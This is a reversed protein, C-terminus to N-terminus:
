HSRIGRFVIDGITELLYRVDTRFPHEWYRQLYTLEVRVIQDFGGTSEAFIPPVLGPKVQIYLDYLEKPYLSLYHRSTARLGVLKIDGRVWDFVGPLEDLWYKRLFPGYETLRFDNRFKGTSALGHDEFIRKQLFESFPFMTRIKHTHFTEGDLGVKELSVIPYYTPKRNEVPPSVRRAILWREGDGASEAVVNMGCYSLRGWIEAKSFARNEGKTWAFYLKNLWPIKPFARRWIFGPIDGAGRFPTLPLYRGALYGGMAIRETCELFFRNLRRVDNFRGRYVLLAAPGAGELVRPQLGRAPEGLVVLETADGRLGSLHRELFPILLADPGPPLHSLIPPRDDPTETGADGSPAGPADVPASTTDVASRAPAVRRRCPLSFALDAAVFLFFGSWLADPPAAPSGAVLIIVWLLFAMVGAAKFHSALLYTLYRQPYKHVHKQALFMSALWAPLLPLLIADVRGRGLWEAAAVASAILLVLSLAARSGGSGLLPVHRVRRQVAPGNVPRPMGAGEVAGPSNEDM